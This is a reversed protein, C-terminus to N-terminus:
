RTEYIKNYDGTTVDIVCAFDINRTAIIATLEGKIYYIEHFCIADKISEPITLIFRITGDGNLIFANNMGFEDYSGVIAFGTKDSLKIISVPPSKFYKEKRIGEYTWTLSKEDVNWIFNNITNM